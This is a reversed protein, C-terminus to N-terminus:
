DHGPAMLSRKAAIEQPEGELLITRRSNEHPGSYDSIINSSAKLHTQFSNELAQRSYIKEHETFMGARRNAMVFRAM